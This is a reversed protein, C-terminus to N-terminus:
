PYYPNQNLLNNAADRNILLSRAIHRKHRSTVVDADVDARDMRLVSYLRTQYFKGTRFIKQNFSLSIHM